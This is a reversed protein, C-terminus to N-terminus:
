ILFSFSNFDKQSATYSQEERFMHTYVNKKQNVSWM